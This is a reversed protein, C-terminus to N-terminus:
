YFLRFSLLSNSLSNNLFFLFDFIYFAFQEIGNKHQASIGNIKPKV